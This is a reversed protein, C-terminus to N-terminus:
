AIAASRLSLRQQRRARQGVTAGACKRSLRLNPPADLGGSLYRDLWAYFTSKPIGIRDLTKRVPLSSTEVTRIIELKESASYRM